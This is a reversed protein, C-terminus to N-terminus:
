QDPNIVDSPTEIGCDMIRVTYSYRETYWGIQFRPTTGHKIQNGDETLLFAPYVQRTKFSNYHTANDM